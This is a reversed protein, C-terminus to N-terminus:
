KDLNGVALNREPGPPLPPQAFSPTAETPNRRKTQLHKASDSALVYSKQFFFLWLLDSSM